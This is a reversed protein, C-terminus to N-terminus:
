SRKRSRTLRAPKGQWQVGYAKDLFIFTAPVMYSPLRKRLYDEVETRLANIGERHVAAVPESQQSAEGADMRRAYVNYLATKTILHRSLTSKIATSSLMQKVEALRGNLDHVEIV